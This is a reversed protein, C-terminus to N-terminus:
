SNKEEKKANQEVILGNVIDNIKNAADRAIDEPTRNDMDLNVVYVNNMTDEEGVFNM